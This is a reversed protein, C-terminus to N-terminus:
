RHVLARSIKMECGMRSSSSAGIFTLVLRAVAHDVCRKSHFVQQSSKSALDTTVNVALVVIEEAQEFIATEWWLGVIEEEAVVYVAALLRELGDAQEECVLDLVGLVEEHEAAVVLTRRDVADVAEVVLTLTAVVDLQPLGECVTEVAQGDGSDDVLFDEGHVTAEAGVQVRHLLDPADHSWCVHTCGTNQCQHYLPSSNSLFFRQSTYIGSQPSSQSRRHDSGSLSM